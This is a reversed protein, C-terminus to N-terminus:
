AIGASALEIKKIELKSIRAIRSIKGTAEAQLKGDMIDGVLEEVSAASSKSSLFESLIKRIASKKPSEVKSSTVALMKVVFPKANKDALKDFTYIATSHRRVLSHLYSYNSELFDISTHAASGDSSAVRLGVNMFSHAPNQTVWSLSVKILRGHVAKDDLAPMEGIIKEGLLKPAYVNFWRKSKWKEVSKQAPM